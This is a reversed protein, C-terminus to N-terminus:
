EAQDPWRYEITISSDIEKIWEAITKDVARESAERLEQMYDGTLYANRCEVQREDLLAQVEEDSHKIWTNAVSKREIADMRISDAFIMEPEPLHMIIRSGSIELTTKSLDVGFSAAYTYDIYVGSAVETKSMMKEDSIVGTETVTKTVLMSADELKRSLTASVRISEGKIDPLLKGVLKGIHPTLVIVLSLIVAVALVKALWRLVTKM